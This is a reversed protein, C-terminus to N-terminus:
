TYSMRGGTSMHFYMCNKAIKEYCLGVVQVLQSDTLFMYNEVTDCRVVCLFCGFADCIM